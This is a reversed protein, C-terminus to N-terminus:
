HEPGSTSIEGCAIPISSHNPYGDFTGVTDPLYRDSSAGYILVVRKKLNLKESPRLKTMLDEKYEDKRKLDSLMYDSNCAESYYYYSSNNRMHPFEHLGKMQSNLNSDLPMLIPGAVRYSEIFDLYGDRNLDDKMTPCSSNTHLFQPHMENTQPGKLNIRVWFQNDSMSLDVRGSFIGVKSNLPNLVATYWGEIVEEQRVEVDGFGSGFSFLMLLCLLSMQINIFAGNAKLVILFFGAM